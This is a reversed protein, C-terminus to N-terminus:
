DCDSGTCVRPDDNSSTSVHDKSKTLCGIPDLEENRLWTDRYPDTNQLQTMFLGCFYEFYEQRACDVDIIGNPWDAPNDSWYVHIINGPTGVPAIPPEWLLDCVFPDDRDGSSRGDESNTSIVLQQENQTEVVEESSCAFVIAALM